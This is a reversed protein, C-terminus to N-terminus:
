LNKIKLNSSKYGKNIMQRKISQLLAFPADYKVVTVNKGEIHVLQGSLAKRKVIPSYVPLKSNQQKFLEIDMQTPIYDSPKDM